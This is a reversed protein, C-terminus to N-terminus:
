RLGGDVAAGFMQPTQSRNQRRAEDQVRPTLEAHLESVSGRGATESLAKLLHYTFLGHGQDELAGTIEEASSASLSVVKTDTPAINLKSVLPRTGSAIVSRGGAGSFCSDLAVLVRKAKLAGLKEYLRKIPYATEELYQPDGDTPVLYAASTKADPAGHGSFYFMVTSRETVQNPLWAELNKVLGTRTANAGTLLVINRQPYGMALLHANMAKADREAFRADPLSNYKEVGVVIAFADPNAAVKYLPQDVDSKIEAPAAPAPPEKTAAASKLMQMMEAKTIGDGAAGVAPAQGGARLRELLRIAATFQAAYPRLTDSASYTAINKELSAIASDVDDGRKILFRVNNTNGETAACVLLTGENCADCQPPGKSLVEALMTTDGKQAAWCPLGPCNQGPVYVERCKAVLLQVIDPHSYANAMAIGDGLHNRGAGEGPVVGESLLKEVLAKDGSRAAAALPTPDLVANTRAVAKQTWTKTEATPKPHNPGCGTALVAAALLVFSLTKM